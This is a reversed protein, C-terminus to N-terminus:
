IPYVNKKLDRMLWKMWVAILFISEHIGVLALVVLSFPKSQSHKDYIMNLM